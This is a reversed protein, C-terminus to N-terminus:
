IEYFSIATLLLAYRGQGYQLVGYSFSIRAQVACYM